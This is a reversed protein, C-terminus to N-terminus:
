EKEQLMQALKKELRSIRDNTENKYKLFDWLVENIAFYLDVDEKDLFRKKLEFIFNALDAPRLNKLEELSIRLEDDVNIFEYGKGDCHFCRFSHKKDPSYRNGDGGQHHCVRCNQKRVEYVEYDKM